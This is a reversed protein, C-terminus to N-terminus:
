MRADILSDVSNDSRDYRKLTPVPLAKPLDVVEDDDSDSEYDIWRKPQQKAERKPEHAKEEDDPPDEDDSEDNFLLAFKNIAKNTPPAKIQATKIPATKIPAAKIQAAKIQATKTCYKVTHGYNGCIRCKLGLLTPCCVNGSPDNVWHKVNTKGSDFCVKCFPSKSNM